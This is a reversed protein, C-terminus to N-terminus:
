AAEAAVALEVLRLIGFLGFAGALSAVLSFSGVMPGPHWSFWQWLWSGAYLGALGFFVQLGHINFNLGVLRHATWGSLTGLLFLQALYPGEDLLFNGASPGMEYM